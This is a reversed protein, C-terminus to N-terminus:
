QKSQSDKFRKRIEEIRRRNVGMDWYGARSASRVHIIKEKDDFYFEMDDVFGSLTRYEAHLYGRTETIIKTRKTSNIIKKIEIMANPQSIKYVISDTKHREDTSQSSVCNPTDPCPKLKGNKIGIDSSFASDSSFSCM